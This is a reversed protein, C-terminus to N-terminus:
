DKPTSSAVAARRVNINKSETKWAIEIKNRNLIAEAGDSIRALKPGIVYIVGATLYRQFDRASVKRQYKRNIFIFYPKARTLRPM